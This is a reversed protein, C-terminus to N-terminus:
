TRPGISHADSAEVVLVAGGANGIEVEIAKRVQPSTSLHEATVVLVGSGPPRQLRALLETLGPRMIRAPPMHRDVYVDALKLGEAVAHAVLLDHFRDEEAEDDDELRIYGFVTASM